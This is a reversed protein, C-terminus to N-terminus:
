TYKTEIPIAPIATGASVATNVEGGAMTPDDITSNWWHLYEWADWAMPDM